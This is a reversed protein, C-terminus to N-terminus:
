VADVLISWGHKWVDDLSGIGVVRAPDSDRDSWTLIVHALGLMRDAWGFFTCEESNIILHATIDHACSPSLITFVSCDTALGSWTIWDSIRDSHVIRQFHSELLEDFSQLPSYM